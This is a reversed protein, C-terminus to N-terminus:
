ASQEAEAAAAALAEAAHYSSRVFPAAAVFAFGMQRLAAALAEMEAPAVFRAVPLNAPTPQLYQGITLMDVGAARLDRGVALVEDSREGLGL